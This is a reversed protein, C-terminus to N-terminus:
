PDYQIIWDTSPLILKTERYQGSLVGKTEATRGRCIIRYARCRGLGTADLFSETRIMMSVINQLKGSVIVPYRLSILKPQFLTGRGPESLQPAPSQAMLERFDDLEKVKKLDYGNAPAHIKYYSQEIVFDASILSAGYFGDVSEAAPKMAARFTNYTPERAAVEGLKAFLGSFYTEVAAGIPDDARAALVATLLVATIFRKM